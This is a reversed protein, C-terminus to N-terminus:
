PGKENSMDANESPIDIYKESSIDIYKESPIDIYKEHSYFM